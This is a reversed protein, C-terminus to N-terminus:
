FLFFRTHSISCSIKVILINTQLNVNFCLVKARTFCFCVKKRKQRNFHKVIKGQFNLKRPKFKENLLTNEM